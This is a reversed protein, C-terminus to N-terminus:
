PISPTAPTAPSTPPKDLPQLPPGSAPQALEIRVTTAHGPASEVRFTGGLMEVRERMGVLGLRNHPKAGNGGDVQFGQGDDTISMRIVGDSSEIRLAAQTAKAHRSINTLAEQVVRYLMTRVEGSAQEIAASVKLSTRIGTGRMFAKLFSNLAPILGLDDLVAPRLECAFRHVLNVSKEVLRQTSTIQQHLQRTNTASDAKLGGLRVNISALTHGIVDHLERSIRRREEEQASLLQRSLDRLEERAQLSQELLLSTAAESARLSDEVVKRLLIEQNLEEVSTALEVTRESLTKVIRNLHTKAERAGRHTKEIPTIAEAFFLGALGVLCQNTDATAAVVALSVLAREHIRALDLIELGVSIAHHGLERAPELDAGPGQALYHRLANQYTLALDPAKKHKSTASIM